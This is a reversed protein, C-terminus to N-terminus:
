RLHGILWVQLLPWLAVHWDCLEACWLLVLVLIAKARIM